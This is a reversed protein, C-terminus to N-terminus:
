GGLLRRPHRQSMGSLHLGKAARNGNKPSPLSLDMAAARSTLAFAATGGRFIFKCSRDRNCVRTIMLRSDFYNEGCVRSSHSEPKGAPLQM